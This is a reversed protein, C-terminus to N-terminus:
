AVASQMIQTIPVITLVGLEAAEDETDRASEEGDGGPAPTVDAPGDNFDGAVVPPRL